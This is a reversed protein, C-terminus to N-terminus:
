QFCLTATRKEVQKEEWSKNKNYRSNNKSFHSSIISNSDPMGFKILLSIFDNNQNTSSCHRCLDALFFLFNFFSFQEKRKKTKEDDKEDDDIIICWIFHLIFILNSSMVNFSLNATQIHTHIYMFNREPAHTSFDLM